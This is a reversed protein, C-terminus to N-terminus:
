SMVPTKSAEGPSASILSVTIRKIAEGFHLLSMRIIDKEKQSYQSIKRAALEVEERSASALLPLNIGVPHLIENLRALSNVARTLDITLAKTLAAADGVAFHGLGTTALNEATDLFGERVLEEQIMINLQRKSLKM